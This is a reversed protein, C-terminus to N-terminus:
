ITTTSGGQIAEELANQWGELRLDRLNELGETVTPMQVQLWAEVKNSSLSM